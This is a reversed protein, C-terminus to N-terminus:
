SSAGEILSIVKVLDLEPNLSYHIDKGDRNKFIIQASNLRKAHWNVTSPHISLADAIMKQNAQRNSILFKVMDRSTDNKLTAMIEKYGYGSTYKRYGNRNPYFHKQKGSKHSVIRDGWELVDLHHRVSSSSIGFQRQIEALHEGPNESIYEYIDKRVGELVDEERLRAFLIVMVASSMVVFIGLGMQWPISDPGIILRTAEDSDGGVVSYDTDQEASDPWAGAGGGSNENPLDITVTQPEWLSFGYFLVASALLISVIGFVLFRGRGSM